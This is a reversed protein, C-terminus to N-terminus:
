PNYYFKKSSFSTRKNSHKNQKILFLTEIIQRKNNFNETNVQKKITLGVTVLENNIGFNINHNTKIYQKNEIM